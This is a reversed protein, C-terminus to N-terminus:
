VMVSAAPKVAEQDKLTVTLSVCAGSKLEHGGPKDTVLSGPIQPATTVKVMGVALSVQPLAVTVCVSPVPKVDPSRNGIPVVMISYVASSPFPFVVIQLKVMETVSISAGEMVQGAGTVTFASVFQSAVLTVNPVGVVLSLQAIVETVFSRADCNGSGTPV